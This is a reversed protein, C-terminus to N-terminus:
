STVIHSFPMFVSDVNLINFSSLVIASSCSNLLQMIDPYITWRKFFIVPLILFAVNMCSLFFSLLVVIFALHMSRQHCDPVHIHLPRLIRPHYTPSDSSSPLCQLRLSQHSVGAIVKVSIFSVGAFITSGVTPLWRQCRQHLFSRGFAFEFRHDHFCIRWEHKWSAHFGGFPLWNIRLFIDGIGIPLLM